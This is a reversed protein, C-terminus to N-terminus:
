TDKVLTYSGDEKFALVHTKAKLLDLEGKKLEIKHKSLLKRNSDADEEIVWMEFNPAPWTTSMIQYELTM